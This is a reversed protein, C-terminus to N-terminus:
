NLRFHIVVTQEAAVAAGGRTAPGFRWRRVTDLAARDLLAYGSGGRVAVAAVLGDAAISVHLTVSGEQRKLRAARPYDPKPCWASGVTYRAPEVPEALPGAPASGVAAGAVPLAQPLPQPHNMEVPPMKRIAAPRPQVSPSPKPAPKPSPEPKSAPEIEAAAAPPAPSEPVVTAAPAPPAPAAPAPAPVMTVLDVLIAQPPQDLPEPIAIPPAFGMLAAAVAVHVALSSALAARM